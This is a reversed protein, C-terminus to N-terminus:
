STLEEKMDELSKILDEIIGLINDRDVLGEYLHDIKDYLEDMTYNIYKLREREYATINKV